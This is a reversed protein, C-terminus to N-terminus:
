NNVQNLWCEKKLQQDIGKVLKKHVRTWCNKKNQSAIVHLSHVSLTPDGAIIQLITKTNIDINKPLLKM